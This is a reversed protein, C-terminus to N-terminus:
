RAEQKPGSTGQKAKKSLKIYFYLAVLFFLGAILQSNSLVGDIVFGRSLDGRFIEIISRGVAYLMLYTLFLQGEFKKRKKMFLIFALITFIMLSSYLQTPHLPTNLPEAVCHPDTFTVSIFGDTPVGYCCGAMFCGLRGTGHVILTTGAIIDLMGLTPLKYHRFFWLMTPIAFIFSGYFVFGNAFNDLLKGPHQLYGSPDEFFIFIKGGVVAAIILLTILWQTTEWSVNYQKKAQYGTYIFALVAGLAILFGYTYITITDSFIGKLFSPTDFQFLIPHM